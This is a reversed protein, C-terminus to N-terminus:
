SAANFNEYMQNLLTKQTKKTAENGGFRAQIAEFLTKADKYQNFTLQHENPLVMLLMSRAKVDNKKQAKEKTTVPGPITSTSTGDANTTTRAVPKFSNGYDIVERLAYDQVQLYQKIRLKWMEYDGQYRLIGGIGGLARCFMSGELSSDTVFELTCRFEKYGHAFWDILSTKELVELEANTGLDLCREFYRVNYLYNSSLAIAEDFGPNGGYFVEVTYMVKNQLCLDLRGILKTKYTPSAAVVLASINIYYRIYWNTALDVVMSLYDKHFFHVLIDYEHDSGGRHRMLPDITIEDLVQKRNGSLIGFLAMMVLGNPPVESYLQLKQQASTIARIASVKSSARPELSITLCEHDGIVYALLTIDPNDDMDMSDDISRSSKIFAIGGEIAANFLLIAGSGNHVAAGDLEAKSSDLFVVLVALLSDKGSCAISHSLPKPLLAVLVSGDASFAAVTMPKKRYSGVARCAWRARQSLKENRQSRRNNVKFDGGYSASVAMDRTPHFAIASVGADSHPEYIVTSLSFDNNQSTGLVRTNCLRRIREEALRTEVTCMVSGELSLAVLNLIMERILAPVSGSFCSM